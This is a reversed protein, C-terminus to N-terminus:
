PGLDLDGDGVVGEVTCQVLDACGPPPPEGGGGGGGGGGGSGGGGGGSGGSSGGGSSGGSSGSSSAGGSPATSTSGGSSSSTGPTPSPEETPTPPPALARVVLVSIRALASELADRGLEWQAMVLSWSAGLRLEEVIRRLALLAPMAQDVALRAAVVSAVLGGAPSLGRIISLARRASLSRPLVEELTALAGRAPLQRALGDELQDLDLGLDIADGLLRTDWADGPDVSLPRPERAVIGATVVAERLGPVVGEFGSGPLTVGGDYVGVRLAVGRDLRYLSDRGRVSIEGVRVALGESARVLASGVMLEPGSTGVGLEAEPAVEISQAGPFRLLARGDAGTRVLDGPELEVSGTVATVEGDHVIQVPGGLPDLRPRSIDQPSSQACAGALLSAAALSITLKRM